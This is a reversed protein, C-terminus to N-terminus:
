RTIRVVDGQISCTARVVLCLVNVIEHFEQDVFWASVTEGALDPDEIMIRVGYRYQLEFAAAHLPEAQFVLFDGTWAILGAVDDVPGHPATRGGAVRAREGAIVEVERGDHGSVAVRGEVVVVDLSDGEARIDFRTGLVRAAGAPTEIVFPRDPMPAVAFFARGDLAVRREAASAEIRLTTAPAIRVVTGDDLQVTTMEAAGTRFERVRFEPGAPPRHLLDGGAIMIFAIAAALTTLAAAVARGTSLRRGAWTASPRAEGAAPIAYLDPSVESLRVITRASPPTGTATRRARRDAAEVLRALEDLRQRVAPDAAVREAVSAAESPTVDRRLYRYLIEDDM